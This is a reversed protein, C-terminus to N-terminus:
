EGLASLYLDMVAEFEQRQESSLKRLKIVERLAKVQFGVGKAEAYVDAIDAQIGAKEESLREIREVFSKLRARVETQAQDTM